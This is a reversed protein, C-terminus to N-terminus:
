GGEGGLTVIVNNQFFITQLCGRLKSSDPLATRGDMSDVHVLIINPKKPLVSLARANAISAPSPTHCDGHIHELEVWRLWMCRKGKQKLRM